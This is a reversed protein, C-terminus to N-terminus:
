FSNFMELSKILFTVGLSRCNTVKIFVVEMNPTGPVSGCRSGKDTHPLAGSQQRRYMPLLKEDTRILRMLGSSFLPRVIFDHRNQGHRWDTLHSVSVIVILFFFNRWIDVCTASNVKILSYRSVKVPLEIISSYIFFSIAAIMFNKNHKEENAFRGVIV